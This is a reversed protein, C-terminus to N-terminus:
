VPKGNGQFPIPKCACHVIEDSRCIGFLQVFKERPTKKHNFLEVFFCLNRTNQWVDMIKTENPFELKAGQSRSTGLVWSGGGFDARMNKKTHVYVCGVRSGVEYTYNPCSVFAFLFTFPNVTAYPIKREKTGIFLFCTIIWCVTVCKRTKLLCWLGM